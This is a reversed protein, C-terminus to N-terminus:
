PLAVHSAHLPLLSFIFLTDLQNNHEYFALHVTLGVYFELKIINLYALGGLRTNMKINLFLNIALHLRFLHSLSEARRTRKIERASHVPFWAHPAHPQGSADMSRFTHLQIGQVINQNMTHKKHLLLYVEGTNVVKAQYEGM